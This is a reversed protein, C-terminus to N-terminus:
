HDCHGGAVGHNFTYDLVVLVKGDGCGSEPDHFFVWTVM